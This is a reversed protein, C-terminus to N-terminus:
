GGKTDQGWTREPGDGALQCTQGKSTLKPDSCKGVLCEPPTRGCWTGGRGRAAM